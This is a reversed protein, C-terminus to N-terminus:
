HAVRLGEAECISAIEGIDDIAGTAVTGATAVVAFPKLGAEKDRKIAARLEAVEMRYDGSVPIKRVAETGLGLMDAARDTVVHVEQSAYLVLPPGAAVGKARVNWGARQDRAATLAVFNAM